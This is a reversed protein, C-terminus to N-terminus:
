PEALLGRNKDLWLMVSRDEILQTLAASDTTGNTFLPGQGVPIIM